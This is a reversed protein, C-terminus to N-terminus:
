RRQHLDGRKLKASIKPVLFSFDRAMTHRKQTIKCKATETSCRSTVSLCVVVAHVVIAHYRATFIVHGFKLFNETPRCTLLPPPQTRRQRCHLTYKRNQPHHWTKVCHSLYLYLRPTQSNNVTVRWAAGSFQTVPRLRSDEVAKIM